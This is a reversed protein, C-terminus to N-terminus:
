HATLGRSLNWGCAGPPRGILAVVDMLNVPTVGDACVPVSWRGPSPRSVATSSRLITLVREPKQTGIPTPTAVSAAESTAEASWPPWAAVGVRTSGAAACCDTNRSGTMPTNSIQPSHDCRVASVVNVSTGLRQRTTPALSPALAITDVIASAAQRNDVNTQTCRNPWAGPPVPLREQVTIACLQSYRPEPM